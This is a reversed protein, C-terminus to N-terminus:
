LVETYISSGAMGAVENQEFCFEMQFFYWINLSPPFEAVASLPCLMEGLSSCYSGIAALAM